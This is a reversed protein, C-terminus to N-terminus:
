RPPSCVRHTFILNQIASSRVALTYIYEGRIRACNNVTECKCIQLKRRCPPAGEHAVVIMLLHLEVHLFVGVAGLQGFFLNFYNAFRELGFAISGDETKQRRTIFQVPKEVRFQLDLGFVNLVHWQCHSHAAM